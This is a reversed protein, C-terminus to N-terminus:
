FSGSLLSMDGTFKSSNQSQIAHLNIVTNTINKWAIIKCASGITKRPEKKRPLVLNLYYGVDPPLRGDYGRPSRLSGVRMKKDPYIEITERSDM